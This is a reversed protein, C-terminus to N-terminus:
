RKFITQTLQGFLKKLEQSKSPPFEPINFKERMARLSAPDRKQAADQQARFAEILQNSETKFRLLDRSWDGPKYVQSDSYRWRVDEEGSEGYFTSELINEGNMQVRLIGHQTMIDWSAPESHFHMVYNNNKFEFCVTTYDVEELKALLPHMPYNFNKAWYQYPRCQKFLERMQEPLHTKKLQKKLTAIEAQIRIYEPNSM